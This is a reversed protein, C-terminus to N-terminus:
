IIYFVIQFDNNVHEIQAISVIFNTGSKGM